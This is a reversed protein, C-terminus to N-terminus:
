ADLGLMPPMTADIAEAAARQAEQDVHAYRRTTSLDKHNMLHQLVQIRTGNSAHLAGFSHRLDHIRLDALDARKRIADWPKKLDARPRGPIKGQIVYPNDPARPIGALIRQATPTLPLRAYGTKSDPLELYSDRVYDWKLGLIESKRCGTVLFLRIAAIAFPDVVGDRELEFLTQTLRAWEERSLYRRREREKYKQVHRCPNFGSPVLALRDAFSFLASLLKLTHNAQNPKARMASHLAAVDAQAVDLIRMAGLKPKIHRRYTRAYEEYTRPKLRPKGHEEFYRAAVADITPTAREEAIAQAPNEGGAVAGLVERAKRRALEATLVGHRGIAVRRTRGGARYQVLYTKVGSPRARLGFGAILDDWYFCERATAGLSDVFRKNLRPM